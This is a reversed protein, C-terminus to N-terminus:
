HLEPVAAVDAVRKVDEDVESGELEDAPSLSGRGCCGIGSRTASWRPWSSISLLWARRPWWWLLTFHLLMLSRLVSLVQSTTMMMEAAIAMM